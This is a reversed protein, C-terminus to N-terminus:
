KKAKKSKYLSTVNTKIRESKEFKQFSKKVFRPLPAENLFQKKANNKHFQAKFVRKYSVM